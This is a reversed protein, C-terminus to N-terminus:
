KDSRRNAASVRRWAARACGGSRARCAGAAKFRGGRAQAKFRGAAPRFTTSSKGRDTRASRRDRRGAAAEPRRGTRWVRARGRRGKADTTGSGAASRKWRPVARRRKGSTGRVRRRPADAQERDRLFVAAVVIERREHRRELRNREMVEPHRDLERHLEADPQAAHQEQAVLRLVACIEVADARELQRAAERHGLDAVAGVHAFEFGRGGVVGGRLFKDDVARRPIGAFVVDAVARAVPRSAVTKACSSVAPARWPTWAKRTGRRVSSPATQAPTRM